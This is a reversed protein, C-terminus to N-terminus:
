SWGESWYNQIREQLTLGDRKYAIKFVDKIDFDKVDEYISNISKVTKEYSETLSNYFVDEIKKEQENWKGRSLFEKYEKIANSTINHMAELNNDAIEQNEKTLKQFAERLELRSKKM